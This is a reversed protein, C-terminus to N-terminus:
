LDNAFSYYASNSQHMSWQSRSILTRLPECRVSIGRVFIQIQDRWANRIDLKVVVGVKCYTCYNCLSGLAYKKDDESSNEASDTPPESNVEESPADNTNSERESEQSLKPELMPEDAVEEDGVAAHTTILLSLLGMLIFSKM